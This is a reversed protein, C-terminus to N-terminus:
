GRIGFRMTIYFSVQQILCKADKKTDFLYNIKNMDTATLIDKHASPSIGGERKLKKIMGDFTDNARRFKKLSEQQPGSHTSM